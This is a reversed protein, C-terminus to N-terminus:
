WLTAGDKPRIYIWDSKVGPQLDLSTLITPTGSTQYFNVYIYDTSDTYATLSFDECTDFSRNAVYSESDDSVDITWKKVM